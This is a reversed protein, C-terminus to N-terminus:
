GVVWEGEEDRVSYADLLAQAAEPYKERLTLYSNFIGQYRGRYHAIEASGIAESCTISKRAQIIADPSTFRKRMQTIIAPEWPELVAQVRM